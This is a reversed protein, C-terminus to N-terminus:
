RQSRVDRMSEQIRRQLNIYGHNVFTSNRNQALGVDNQGLFSRYMNSQANQPVRNNITSGLNSPTARSNMRNRNRLQNSQLLRHTGRNSSSGQLMEDENENQQAAEEQRWFQEFNSAYRLDVAIRIIDSEVTQNADSSEKMMEYPNKIRANKIGGNFVQNGHTWVSSDLLNLMVSSQSKHTDEMSHNDNVQCLGVFIQKPDVQKNNMISHAQGSTALGPFGLSANSFHPHGNPKTLMHAQNSQSEMHLGSTNEIDKFSKSEESKLEHDHDNAADERVEKARTSAKIKFEWYHIGHLPLPESVIASLCAEDTSQCIKDRKIRLYYNNVSPIVNAGDFGVDISLDFHKFDFFTSFGRQIFRLDNLLTEEKLWGKAVTFRIADFM